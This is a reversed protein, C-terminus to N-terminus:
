AVAETTGRVPCYTDVRQGAPFTHTDTMTWM